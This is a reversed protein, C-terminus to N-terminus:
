VIIGGRRMVYRAQIHGPISQHYFLGQHTGFRAAFFALPMESRVSERKDQALLWKQRSGSVIDKNSDDTQTEVSASLRAQTHEVQFNFRLRSTVGALNEHQHRGEQQAMRNLLMIAQLVNTKGSGNPGILVSLNPHCEFSTSFCSRYNEITVKKLM